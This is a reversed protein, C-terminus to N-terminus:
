VHGESSLFPGHQADPLHLGQLLEAADLGGEMVVEVLIEAKDASLCVLSLALGTEILELLSGGATGLYGSRFRVGGM